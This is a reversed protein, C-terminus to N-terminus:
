VARVTLCPAPPPGHAQVAGLDICCAGLQRKQSAPGRGWSAPRLGLCVRSGWLWADHLDLQDIAAQLEADSDLGLIPCLRNLDHHEWRAAVDLDLKRTRPGFVCTRGLTTCSDAQLESVADLSARSLRGKTVPWLHLKDQLLLSDRRFIM